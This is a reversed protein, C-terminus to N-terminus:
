PQPQTRVFHAGIQRRIDQAIDQVAREEADREQVVSGYRPGLFNFSVMSRSRGSLVQKGESDTLQFAGNMTLRGLTAEADKNFGLGEVLQSIEIHLSYRPSVPDGDPTIQQVLANRMRQGLRDSIAMVRIQALEPGVSGADHLTGYMPRFGCGALGLMAVVVLAKSWWM